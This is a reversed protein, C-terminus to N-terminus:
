ANRLDSVIHQTEITYRLANDLYTQLNAPAGSLNNQIITIISALIPDNYYSAIEEIIIPQYQPQALAVSALSSLTSLVEVSNTVQSQYGLGVLYSAGSELNGYATASSDRLRILDAQQADVKTYLLVLLVAVLFKM